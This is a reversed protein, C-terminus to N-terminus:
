WTRTIGVLDTRGSETRLYVEVTKRPDDSRIEATFYEGPRANRLEEPLAFDTRGPLPSKQASSNDFRSWQVQYKRPSTFRYTM